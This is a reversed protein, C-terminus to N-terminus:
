EVLGAKRLGDQFHEPDIQEVIRLHPRAGRDERLRSYEAHAAAAETFRGQHGLSSALVMYADAMDTKLGIANGAWKEAEAYDRVDLCITALM